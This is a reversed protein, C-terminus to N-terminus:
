IPMVRDTLRNMVPTLQGPYAIKCMAEAFYYDGFLVASDVGIRPPRSYCGHMLIGRHRPDLAFLGLLAKTPHGVRTSEV